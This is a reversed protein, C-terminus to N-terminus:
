NCSDMYTVDKPDHAAPRLFGYLSVERLEAFFQQQPIPVSTSHGQALGALLM